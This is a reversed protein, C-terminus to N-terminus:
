ARSNLERAHQCIACSACWMLICCDGCNSYQMGYKARIQQRTFYILNTSGLCCDCFTCEREDANAKNKAIQFCPVFWTIVCVSCDDFCGCLGEEFDTM